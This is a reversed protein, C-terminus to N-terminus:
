GGGRQARLNARKIGPPLAPPRTGRYRPKRSWDFLNQKIWKVIFMNGGEVKLRRGKVKLRRGAVM